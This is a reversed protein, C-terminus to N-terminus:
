KRIWLDYTDTDVLCEYGNDHELLSIIFKNKLVIYDFDYRTLYDDYYIEGTTFDMFEDFYDDKKNMRKTYLEM